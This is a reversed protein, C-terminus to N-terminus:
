TKGCARLKDGFPTWDFGDYGRFPIRNTVAWRLHLTKPRPSLDLMADMDENDFTANHIYLHELDLKGLSKGRTAGSITNTWTTPISVNSVPTHQWCIGTMFAVIIGM